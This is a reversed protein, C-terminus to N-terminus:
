AVAPLAYLLPTGWKVILGLMHMENTKDTNNANM